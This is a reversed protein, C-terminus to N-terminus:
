LDLFAGGVLVCCTIIIWGNCDDYRCGTVDGLIEPLDIVPLALEALRGLFSFQLLFGARIHLM